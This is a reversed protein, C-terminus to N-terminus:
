AGLRVAEWGDAKRLFAEAADPALRYLFLWEHEVLQRLVEHKALVRDIAPASAEVYVALRLPEHVWRSGDHVSQRALGIRLDGGAGEYVGLTGGVVNHLAKDGSGYREPDVTSAYYQLNIWHAVIVPATLITELVAHDHDLAPRYEHLFARGQLDLGRTRTRPAAVFAANRALAWEPRVESWDAAKARVAALLRGDDLTADLGLGPARERRTAAGAKAFTRALADADARRDAPLADLDLLTVEDTVTDHVGAVFRTPEPIVIGRVSLGARVEADNLLSALVRASAEGSQGGCAGCALGAAQPNNRVQAGHGIFAVLRAFGETLSMGRLAGEAMAVRAELGAGADADAPALRPAAAPYAPGEPTRLTFADGLLRLGSGLGTAEVFPFASPAGRTFERWAPATARRAGQAGDEERSADVAPALLGPVHARREGDRGTLALPMGFFGAFGLTRVEADTAELHRRLVESRVDICFVAQARVIALAAPGTRVEFPNVQRALTRALPEQWALERARLLVWDALDGHRLAHPREDWERRARTWRGPLDTGTATRYLVLDWAARVALLQVIAADDGGGLRADWRRFACYSAWGNVSLLLATLYPVRQAAPIALTDMAEAIAEEAKGPLESVADRFGRLGMRLRPGADDHALARWLAYLGAARDPQWAAEREDFFAECARGVHQAVFDRWREQRRLDRLGDRADTVLPHPQPERREEDLATLVEALTLRVGTAALARRLHDDTLRGAAREARFWERPMVTRAGSLAGLAAGAEPMPLDRWGWWPNVAILRDLPWSPAIRACAEDIAAGLDPRPAAVPTPRIATM